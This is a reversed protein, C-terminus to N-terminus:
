DYKILSHIPVDTSINKRGKLSELEMIILCGVVDAGCNTLLQIAANLSGGTAILDDVIVCKLGPKISDKQIELTDSGYELDYKYSIVDGPLKGKKRVPLCGIGLEAAVSFSFLFGRSELGVVAEAQPFKTKITEILLGQLLKCAAGDSIASFIDWFLIGEKPFNPFHKIKKELESIKKEYETSM